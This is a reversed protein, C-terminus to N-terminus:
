VFRGGMRAARSECRTCYNWLRYPPGIYCWDVFTSVIPIFRM